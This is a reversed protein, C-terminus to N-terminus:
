SRGQCGKDKRHAKVGGQAIKADAGNVSPAAFTSLLSESFLFYPPPAPQRRPWWSSPFNRIYLSLAISRELYISWSSHWMTPLCVVIGDAAGYITISKFQVTLYFLCGRRVRFFGGAKVRGRLSERWGPGWRQWEQGVSRKIMKKDRWRKTAGQNVNAASLEDTAMTAFSVSIRPADTHKHTRIQSHSLFSSLFRVPPEATHWPCHPELPATAAVVSIPQLPLLMNTNSPVHTQIYLIDHDMKELPRHTPSHTGTMLDLILTWKRM